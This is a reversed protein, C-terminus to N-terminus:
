MWKKVRFVVYLLVAAVIMAAVAMPYGYTWQLEPMNDFNMGYIAGIVTPAFIIAAWGSIKKMDENQRQAILASNVELIQSLSNRMETAEAVVRTLHDDLDGFYPKLERPITDDDVRANLAESVRKLSMTAHVLDIVEQSLRYIRETAAVDGSFVQSEIEDKDEQLGDLVPFYGDVTADLLRYILTDTGLALLDKDEAHVWETNRFFRDLEDRDAPIPTGDLFRNGQCIIVLSDDKALVHIESFEVEETDDLYFVNKFVFFLVGDYRELKPRQKAHHLDEALVPHLDWTAIIEDMLETSSHPILYRTMGASTGSSNRDVAEAFSSSILVDQEEGDVIRRSLIMPAPQEDTSTPDSMVGVRLRASTVHLFATGAPM